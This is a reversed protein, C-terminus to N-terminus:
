LDLNVRECLEDIYEKTHEPADAERQYFRLAALMISVDRKSWSSQKKKAKAM